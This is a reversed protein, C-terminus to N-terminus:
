EKPKTGRLIHRKGPPGPLKEMIFGASQMSRRVIGKACYTLILAGPNAVAFLKDFITQNWMEPQKGPAFADFYILDIGNPLECCNSDGKIKHLTFDSTIQVEEGWVARHLRIFLDQEEEGLLRGYNLKEVINIDLPYREVSHYVLHQSLDNRMLEALTLLANLGTGFGIELLQIDKKEIQNLGAHIFIHRSEQIAGNVSHYHENLQPLFLTHSGDATVQLVREIRDNEEM